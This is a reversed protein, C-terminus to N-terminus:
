PGDGESGYTRRPLSELYAEIEDEFWKRSQSGTVVPAPMMGDRVKRWITTRSDGTRRGVEHASILFRAM